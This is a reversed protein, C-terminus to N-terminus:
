NIENLEMKRSFQYKFQLHRSDYFKVFSFYCEHKKPYNSVMDLFVGLIKFIKPIFCSGLSAISYSKLQIFHFCLGFIMFNTLVDQCRM